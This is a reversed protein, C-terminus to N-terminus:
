SKSGLGFPLAKKKKIRQLQPPPTRLNYYTQIMSLINNVTWYLSLAAAFNYLLFLFMVPMWQLIKMQPNDTAQPTMRMLLVSTATMILPLPNIDLGLGPITYITDPQALDKVWLFTENRVEVASQLMTYLGIFIPFQVLLPLCGGVPNVGYEQYLKIMETNLKQPDKEHKKRLDEMKPALAQMKKMSHNATSQLPWFILKLLITLLIIVMGYNPVYDHIHHMIWLLPKIVWGWISFDMVKYQSDPFNKLISYEKPGCYIEYPLVIQAQSNISNGPFSVSTYIGHMQPNPREKSFPFDLKQYTIELAKLEIPMKVISTFFQNCTTVWNLDQAPKTEQSKASSFFGGTMEAATYTSYSQSSRTFWASKLYNVQEHPHVPEGSGISLNFNPVIITQPTPNFLTEQLRIQYQNELTYVREITLENPLTSKATLKGAEQTFSYIENGEMWGLRSLLPAPSHEHLIVNEQNTKGLHKLLEVKKIAGGHSTFEVKIFENELTITKEPESSNTKTPATKSAPLNSLTPVAPSSPSAPTAPTSVSSPTTPPTTPTPYASKMYRDWAFFLIVCAIVGIWSTRDM